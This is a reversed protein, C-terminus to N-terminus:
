RVASEVATPAATPTICQTITPKPTRTETTATTARVGTHVLALTPTPTIVPMAPQTGTPTAALTTPIRTEVATPAAAPTHTPRATTAPAPTITAAIIPGPTPTRQAPTGQEAITTSATPTITLETREIRPLERLAATPNPSSTWEGLVTQVVYCYWKGKPVVRQRDVFTTVTLSTVRGISVWATRTCHSTQSVSGLVAYGDGNAGASWTLVIEKGHWTAKLNGPPVLANTTLPNGGVAAATRLAATAHPVFHGALAFLMVWLLSLWLWRRRLTLRKNM